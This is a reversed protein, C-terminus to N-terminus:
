PSSKLPKPRRYRAGAEKAWAAWAEYAERVADRGRQVGGTDGADRARTLADLGELAQQRARNAPSELSAQERLCARAKDVDRAEVRKNLTVTQVPGIFCDISATFDGPGGNFLSVTMFLAAVITVGTTAWTALMLAVAGRRGLNVKTLLAAMGAGSLWGVGHAVDNVAVALGLLATLVTYMIATRTIPHNFHGDVLRRRVLVFGIMGSVAGSAGAGGIGAFYSAIFGLIGASLYTLLMLRSGIDEEVLRGGWWLVYSNFVVHMLGMHLFIPTIIRWWQGADIAANNQLGIRFLVEPDAGLVEMGGGAPKAGGVLLAAAFFLLNVGIFTATVSAGAGGDGAARKLRMGLKRNDAGCYPCEDVVGMLKGCNACLKPKGDSM